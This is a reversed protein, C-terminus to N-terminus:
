SDRDRKAERSTRKRDSTALLRKRLRINLPTVEILEDDEIYELASELTHIRPPELVIADDASKSRMNSLKKEKTPNVDMDGPRSNEGVVMGEYVPQGPEVFLTAREGLNGLAFAIITGNEMSVLV